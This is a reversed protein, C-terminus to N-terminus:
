PKHLWGTVPYGSGFASVTYKGGSLTMKLPYYNADKNYYNESALGISNAWNQHIVRISDPLVQRVIAVHGKNVGNGNSCIIDGMQPPTTGSNKYAVLGWSPATSFYNKADANMGTNPDGMNPFGLAQSYFRNVYEVCQFQHGYTGHLPYFFGTNANSYAGVEHGNYTFSGIQNGWYPPTYEAASSTGVIAVVMITMIMATIMSKKM